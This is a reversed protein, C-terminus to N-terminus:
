STRGAPASELGELVDFLDLLSDFMPDFRDDEARGLLRQFAEERIRETALLVRAYDERIM